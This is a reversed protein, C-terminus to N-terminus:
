IASYSPKRDMGPGRAASGLERRPVVRRPCKPSLRYESDCKFYRNRLGTRRNARNLTQGDWIVKDESVKSNGDRKRQGVGQKKAKRYTACAAKEKDGGSSGDAEETVMVDQRDMDGCSGFLRRLNAAVDVFRLSEHGSAPAPSKEQRSPGATQMRLISVAQEPFGAGMGM